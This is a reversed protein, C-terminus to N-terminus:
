SESNTIINEKTYKVTATLEPVQNSTKRGSMRLHSPEDHSVDLNLLSCCSIRSVKASATEIIAATVEVVRKTDRNNTPMTSNKLYDCSAVLLSNMSSGVILRQSPPM